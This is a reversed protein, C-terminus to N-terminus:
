YVTEIRIGEYMEGICEKFSEEELEKITKSLVYLSLTPLVAFIM